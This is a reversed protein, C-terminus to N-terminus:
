KKNLLKDSLEDFRKDKAEVEKKRSKYFYTFLVVALLSFAIGILLEFDFTKTKQYNILAIISRILLILLGFASGIAGLLLGTPSVQFGGLISDREEKFDKIITELEWKDKYKEVNNFDFNRETLIKEALKRENFTPNHLGRYIKYLELSTKKSYINEWNAAM